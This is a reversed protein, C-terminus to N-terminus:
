NMEAIYEGIENKNGLGTLRRVGGGANIVEDLAYEGYAQYLRIAGITNYKVDTFGRRTNEEAILERIIALTYKM